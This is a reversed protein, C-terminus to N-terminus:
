NIKCSNIRHIGNNPIMFNTWAQQFNLFGHFYNLIFSSLSFAHRSSLPLWNILIQIKWLQFHKTSFHNLFNLKFYYIGLWLLWFLPPPTHLLTVMISHLRFIRSLLVWNTALTNLPWFCKSKYPLKTRLSLHIRGLIPWVSFMFNLIGLKKYQRIEQM